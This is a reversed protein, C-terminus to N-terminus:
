WASCRADGTALAESTSDTGSAAVWGALDLFQGDWGFRADAAAPACYLNEGAILGDGEGPDVVVFINASEGGSGVLERMRNGSIRTGASPLCGAPSTACEASGLAAASLLIGAGLNWGENDEISCGDCSTLQALIGVVNWVRNSVV